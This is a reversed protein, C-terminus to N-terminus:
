WCVDVVDPKNYKSRFLSANKSQSKQAMKQRVLNLATIVSSPVTAKLTIEHFRKDRVKVPFLIM